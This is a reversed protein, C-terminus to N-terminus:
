KAGEEDSPEGKILKQMGAAIGIAAIAIAELYSPDVKAHICYVVGAIGAIAVLATPLSIKSLM